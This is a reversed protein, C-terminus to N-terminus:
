VAEKGFLISDDVCAIAGTAKELCEDKHHILDGSALEYMYTGLPLGCAACLKDRQM